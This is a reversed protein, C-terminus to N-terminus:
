PLGKMWRLFWEAGLFFILLSAMWWKEGVFRTREERSVAVEYPLREALERWAPQNAYEGKTLQALERLGAINQRLDRLEVASNDVRFAASADQTLTAATYMGTEVPTYRTEYVGPADGTPSLWLTEQRSPSEVVLPVAGGGAEQGTDRVQYTIRVPDFVQFLYGDVQVEGTSTHLRPCVQYLMTLWFPALIEKGTLMNWRWFSRSGMVAIRGLGYRHLTALPVSENMSAMGELLTKGSEASSRPVIFSNLPPLDLGPAENSLIAFPSDLDIKAIVSRDEAIFPGILPAPVAERLAQPLRGAQNSGPIFLIAGGDEVYQKLRQIFQIQDIQFSINHLIILPWRSLDEELASVDPYDGEQPAAGADTSHQEMWLRDGLRTLGAEHHLYAQVQLTEQDELVRKLYKFEWDPASTLLLVHDYADRVQMGRTIQNNSIIREGELPEVRLTYLYQGIEMTPLDFSVGMEDEDVLATHVQREELIQDGASTEGQLVVTLSTGSDVGRLLIQAKLQVSEGSRAVSPLQISDVLVDQISSVPGVGFTYISAPIRRTSSKLQAAATMPNRGQNWQGDTFMLLYATENTSSSEEFRDIVASINTQAYTPSASEPIQSFWLSNQRRNPAEANSFPLFRIDFGKRRWFDLIGEEQLEKLMVEWRSSPSKRSESLFDSPYSMSLSDDLGVYLMPKLTVQSIERVQPLTLLYLMILFFFLRCIGLSFRARSSIPADLCKISYFYLVLGLIIIAAIIM